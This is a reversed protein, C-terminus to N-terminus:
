SYTCSVSLSFACSVASSATCIVTNCVLKVAKVKKLQKVLKM